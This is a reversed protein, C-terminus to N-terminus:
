GGNGGPCEEPTMGASEWLVGDVSSQVLIQLEDLRDEDDVQACFTVPQSPDFGGNDLPTVIQVSPPKDSSGLTSDNCAALALLAFVKAPRSVLM